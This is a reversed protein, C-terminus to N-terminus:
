QAFGMVRSQVFLYLSHLFNINTAVNGNNDLFHLVQADTLASVQSPETQSVSVDATHLENMLMQTSSDADTNITPVHPELTTTVNCQNSPPRVTSAFNTEPWYEGFLFLENTSQQQQEFRQWDSGYVNQLWVAGGTTSM